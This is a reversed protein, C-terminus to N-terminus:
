AWCRDTDWYEWAFSWFVPYLPYSVEGSEGAWDFDVVRINIDRGSSSFRLNAMKM